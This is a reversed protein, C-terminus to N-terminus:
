HHQLLVHQQHWEDLSQDGDVGVDDEDEEQQEDEVGL